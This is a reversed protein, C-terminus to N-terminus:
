RVNGLARTLEVGLKPLESGPLALEAGAERAAELAHSAGIAVVLVWSTKPDAKLAAIAQLTITTDALSVVLADPHTDLLHAVGSIASPFRAIEFRTQLKRAVEDTELIQDRPDTVAPLTLAVLCRASVVDPPLPYGHVRLFRVVDNRRFRLHRGDTRHHVVKGRDAWHHVTKLDVECFRAFDQATYFAPRRPEPSAAKLASRKRLVM